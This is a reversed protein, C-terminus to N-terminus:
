KPKHKFSTQRYCLPSRGHHRHFQRSFYFPSGYGCEAAIEAV